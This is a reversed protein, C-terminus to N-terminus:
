AVKGPEAYPPHPEHAHVVVLDVDEDRLEFVAVPLEGSVKLVMVDHDIFPLTKLVLPPLNPVLKVREPLDARM